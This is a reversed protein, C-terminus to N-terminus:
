VLFVFVRHMAIALFFFFFLAIWWERGSCLFSVVMLGSAHVLFRDLGHADPRQLVLEVPDRCDFIAVIQEFLDRAKVADSHIHKKLEPGALISPVARVFNRLCNLAPEAHWIAVIVGLGVVSG